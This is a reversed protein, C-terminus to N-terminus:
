MGGKKTFYEESFTSVPDPKGRQKVWPRWPQLYARHNDNAGTHHESIWIGLGAARVRSEQSWRERDEMLERDHEGLAKVIAERIEKTLTPAPPVTVGKQKGYFWARGRLFAAWTEEVRWALEEGNVREGRVNKPRPIGEHCGDDPKTRPWEGWGGQGIKPRRIHCREGIWM